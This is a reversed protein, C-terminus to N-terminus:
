IRQMDRFFHMKKLKEISLDTKINIIVSDEEESHVLLVLKKIIDDKQLAWVSVDNGDSRVEAYADYNKHDFYNHLATLHKDYDDPLHTNVLVRVKKIDKALERVMSKEKDDLDVSAIKGTARIVWGPVRVAMSHDDKLLKDIYKDPSLKKQAQSMTSTMLGLIGILVYLTYKM